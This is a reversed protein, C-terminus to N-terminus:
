PLAAEIEIGKHSAANPLAAQLTMGREALIKQLYANAKEDQEPTAPVFDAFRQPVYVVQWARYLLLEDGDRMITELAASGETGFAKIANGIALWGWDQDTRQGDLGYQRFLTVLLNLVERQAKGQDTGAAALEFHEPESIQGVTGNAPPNFTQVPGTAVLWTLYVAAWTQVVDENDNQIAGTIVSYVEPDDRYRTLNGIALIRNWRDADNKAIEILSERAEPLDGHTIGQIVNM